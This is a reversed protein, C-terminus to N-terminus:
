KLAIMAAIRKCLASATVGRKAGERSRRSCLVLLRSTLSSAMMDDCQPESMNSIESATKYWNQVTDCYTCLLAMWNGSDVVIIEQHEEHTVICYLESVIL